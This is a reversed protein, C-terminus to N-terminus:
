PAKRVLKYDEALEATKYLDRTNKAVLNALALCDSDQLLEATGAAVERDMLTRIEQTEGGNKKIVDRVLVLTKGNRGLFNGLAKGAEPTAACTQLGKITVQGHKLIRLAAKLRALRLGDGGETTLTFPPKADAEPQGDPAEETSDAEPQGDPAEETSDAEPQGDTAEETSDAEAQGDTAEEADAEAQGDAAELSAAAELAADAETQGVIVVLVAETEAQGSPTENTCGTATSIGLIFTLALLPALKKMPLRTKREGAGRVASASGGDFIGTVAAWIRLLSEALLRPLRGLRVKARRKSAARLIENNLAYM